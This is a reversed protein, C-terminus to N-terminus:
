PSRCARPSGHFLLRAGADAFVEYPKLSARNWGTNTTYVAWSTRRESRVTAHCGTSPFKPDHALATSLKSRFDLAWAPTRADKTITRSGRAKASSTPLMLGGARHKLSRIKTQYSADLILYSGVYRLSSHAMVNARAESIIM